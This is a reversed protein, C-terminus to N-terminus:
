KTREAIALFYTVLERMKEPIAIETFARMTEGNIETLNDNSAVFHTFGGVLMEKMAPPVFAYLANYMNLAPKTWNYDTLIKPVEAEKEREKLNVIYDADIAFENQTIGLRDFQEQPASNEKMAHILMKLMAAEAEFNEVESTEHPDAILDYLKTGYNCANSKSAEGNANIKLTKVNKTFSFPEFLEINQLEKVSFMKRMHTPMLTYNYLPSNDYSIPAKMYSYNGDTINVHMGHFGYLAYDRIPKNNNIMQAIDKGQMDKPIELGFFSLLTVPIDITQTLFSRREGMVKSRPDYLFFPTHAIEEYVPMSSKAWWGHEGLLFGHDTNVILMTDEWMNHLDMFDLIKGLNKDCMTLLAAYELRVHNVTKEDETCPTYPPWDAILGEYEHPYMDKFHQMTYFPEHPDFTEIQCFWNDASHNKELFELGLRFTNTQPQKEETDMFNRNVDDNIRMNALFKGAGTKPLELNFGTSFDHEANLDVKWPDGEQGRVCEWTSYRTHYTCGGDEWYHQHDSVLHTHVGNKKLIEPMSDDYPEMPGWARHLFNYRGTHLERRAPMCPLSGVYNKDFTVSHQMLRDFNPTKVWDCGYPSLMARNLSDYMVMIAKM